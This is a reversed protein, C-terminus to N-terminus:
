IYVKQTKQKAQYTLRHYRQLPDHYTLFVNSWEQDLLSPFYPGKGFTDSVVTLHIQDAFDLYKQYTKAGGLIIVNENNRPTYYQDCSRYDIIMKDQVSTWRSQSEFLPRFDQQYTRYGVLLTEARIASSYLFNFDEAFSGPLNGEKNLLSNNETIQAILTIM